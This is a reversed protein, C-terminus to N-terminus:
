KYGMLVTVEFASFGVGRLVGMLALSDDSNTVENVWQGRSSM